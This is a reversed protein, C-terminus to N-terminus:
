PTRNSTELYRAALRCRKPDDDLKGIAVNCPGCLIGRVKGSKHCHDVCAVNPRTGGSLGKGPQYIHLFRSCIKCRFNQKAILRTFDELTIGYKKLQSRRQSTARKSM